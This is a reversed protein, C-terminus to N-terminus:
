VQKTLSNLEPWVFVQIASSISEFHAGKHDQSRTEPLIARFSSPSKGHSPLSRRLLLSYVDQLWGLCSTWHRIQDAPRPDRLLGEIAPLLLVKRYVAAQDLGPSRKSNISRPLISGHISVSSVRGPFAALSNFM